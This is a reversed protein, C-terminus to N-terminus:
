GPSGQQTALLRVGTASQQWNAGQELYLVGVASLLRISAKGGVVSVADAPVVTSTGRGGVPQQLLVTEEGRLLVGLTADDLWALDLGAADSEAVLMPAEGLSLPGGEPREIGAVWVETHGGTTVLAAIRTGDRSVELARISTAGPFASAVAIPEQGDGPYAVLAGPDDGPVSWIYGLPDISPRLLGEREDLVVTGGDATARVVRGDATLVAAVRRDADIEVDVADVGEVVPSLGPIPELQAGSLFGFAGDQLEVLARDRVATSRVPAAQAEIPTGAVTMRVGSVGVSAFSAQLQAQMRALAGSDMRLAGEGIDVHAIGDEIPVTGGAVELSEPFASTVARALWPSPPEDVVARALRTYLASRPFWRLDPVLFRWAPDFFMVSASRYVSAFVEQYLVVGDPARAIRWEGDEQQELVFELTIEGGEAVRYAGHEDVTAVPTVSMSVTTPSTGTLRRDSFSDITVGASPRWTQAFADTLFLRATAWDGAPGPGSGARIFGDVIQQANWGPQPRDPVFAFDASSDSEGPPNGPYVAGSTPLGACGALVLALLAALALAARRM